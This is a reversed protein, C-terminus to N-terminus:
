VAELDADPCHNGGGTQFEQNGLVQGLKVNIGANCGPRGPLSLLCIDPLNELALRPM